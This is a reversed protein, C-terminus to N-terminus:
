SCLGHGGRQNGEGPGCARRGEGQGKLVPGEGPGSEKRLQERRGERLNCPGPQTGMDAKHRLDWGARDPIM